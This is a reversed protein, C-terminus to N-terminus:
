AQMTDSNKKITLAWKARESQKHRGSLPLMESQPVAVDNFYDWVYKTTRGNETLSLSGYLKCVKQLGHLNEM